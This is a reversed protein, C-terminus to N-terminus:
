LAHIEVSEPKRPIMYIVTEDIKFRKGYAEVPLVALLVSKRHGPGNEISICRYSAKFVRQRSEQEGDIDANTANRATEACTLSM